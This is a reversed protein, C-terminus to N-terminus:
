LDVLGYIQKELKKKDQELAKSTQESRKLEERYEAQLKGLRSIETDLFGIREREAAVVYREGQGWEGDSHLAEDAMRELIRDQKRRLDMLTVSSAAYNLTYKVLGAFGQGREQRSSETDSMRRRNDAYEELLQDFSASIHPLQMSSVRLKDVLSSRIETIRQESGARETRAAELQEACSASERTYYDIRGNEEDLEAKLAGHEEAHSRWLALLPEYDAELEDESVLEPLFLQTLLLPLRRRQPNLNRYMSLSAGKTGGPIVQLFAPSASVTLFDIRRGYLEETQGLGLLGKASGLLTMATEYYAFGQQQELAALLIKVSSPRPPPTPEPQEHEDFDSDSAASRISSHIQADSAEKDLRVSGIPAETDLPLVAEIDPKFSPDFGPVDSQESAQKPDVSKPAFNALDRDRNAAEPSESIGQANSGIWDELDFDPESPSVGAEASTQLDPDVEAKPTEWLEPLDPLLSDVRRMYLDWDEQSAADLLRGLVQILQVIQYDILAELESAEPRDERFALYARDEEAAGIEIQEVIGGAFEELEAATTLPMGVLKARKALELLIGLRLDDDSWERYALAKEELKRAFREPERKIWDRIKSVLLEQVATDCCLVYMLRLEDGGLKCLAQAFTHGYM